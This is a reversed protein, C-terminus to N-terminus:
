TGFERLAIGGKRKVVSEAFVIVWDGSRIKIKDFLFVPAEGEARSHTSKEVKGVVCPGLDKKSDAFKCFCADGRPYNIESCEGPENAVNTAV